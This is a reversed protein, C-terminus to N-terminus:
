TIRPFSDWNKIEILVTQWKGYGSDEPAHKQVDDFTLKRCERTEYCWVYFYYYPDSDKAKNFEHKSLYFHPYSMKSFSKVEILINIPSKDLNLRYTLIDYGYRDSDISVWEPRTPIGLSHVIESELNFTWFEAERGQSLLKENLDERALLKITDWWLVVEMPPNKELLLGNRFVQIEDESLNSILDERGNCSLEVLIQSRTVFLYCAKRCLKDLSPKNDIGELASIWEKL